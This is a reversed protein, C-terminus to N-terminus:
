KKNKNKNKRTNNNNNFLRMKSVTRKNRNNNNSYRRKKLPPPVSVKVEDSLVLSDLSSHCLGVESHFSIAHQSKEQREIFYGHIKKGFHSELEDQKKCIFNLVADDHHATDEESYRYVKSEKLPFAINISNQISKSNKALDYLHKRTEPNKFDLLNLRSIVNWEKQYPNRSIYGETEQQTLTFYKNYPPRYVNSAVVGISSKYSDARWLKTDKDLHKVM